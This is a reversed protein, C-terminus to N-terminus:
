FFFCGFVKELMNDIYECNQLAYDRKFARNEKGQVLPVFM